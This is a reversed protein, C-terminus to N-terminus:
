CKLRHYFIKGNPRPDTRNKLFREIETGESKARVQQDNFLSRRYRNIVATLKAIPIGMTGCKVYWNMFKADIILSLFRIYRSIRAQDGTPVCEDLVAISRDIWKALQEDTSEERIALRLREPSYNSSALFIELLDDFKGLIRVAERESLEVTQIVALASEQLSLRLIGDVIM